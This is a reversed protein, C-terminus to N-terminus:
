EALGDGLLTYGAEWHDNLIGCLKQIDAQTDIDASPVDIIDMKLGAVFARNLLDLYLTDTNDEPIITDIVSHYQKPAYHEVCAWACGTSYKVHPPRSIEAPGMSCGLGRQRVINATGSSTMLLDGDIRIIDCDRPVAQAGVRASYVIGAGWDQNIVVDANPIRKVIPKILHNKYGVVVLIKIDPAYRRLMGAQWILLPQGLLEIAGKPIDMGLRSGRGAALVVAYEPQM